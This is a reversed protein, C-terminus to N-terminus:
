SRRKAKSAPKKRAANQQFPPDVLVNPGIEAISSVGTLAMSVDLEKKIIEITKSVGAEGYAGLGWVYSRGILCGRAGLALAREVDMGTRVGGDFLVEIEGGVADAIKPLM